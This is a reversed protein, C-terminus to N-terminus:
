RLLDLTVVRHTKAPSVGTCTTFAVDCGTRMTLELVNDMTASFWDM